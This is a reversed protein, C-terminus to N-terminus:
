PARPARLPARVDGLSQPSQPTAVADGAMACLGAVQITHITDIAPQVRPGARLGWERTDDESRHSKDRRQTPINPNKYFLLQTPTKETKEVRGRRTGPRGLGPRM